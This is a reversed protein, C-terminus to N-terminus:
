QWRSPGAAPPSILRPDRAQEWAYPFTRATVPSAAPKPSAKVARALTPMPAASRATGAPVFLGSEIQTGSPSGCSGRAGASWGRRQRLHWCWLYQMVRDLRPEPNIKRRGQDRYALFIPNNELAIVPQHTRAAAEVSKFMLLYAAGWAARWTAGIEQPMWQPKMTSLQLNARCVPGLRIGKWCYLCTHKIEDIIVQARYSVLERGGKKCNGTATANRCDWGSM